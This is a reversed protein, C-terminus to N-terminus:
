GTEHAEAAGQQHEDAAVFRRAQGTFAPAVGQWSEGHRPQDQRETGAAVATHAQQTSQQPIPSIVQFCDVPSNYESSLAPEREGDDNGRAIRTGHKPYRGRRGPAKWIIGAGWSVWLFHM